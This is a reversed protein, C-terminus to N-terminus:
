NKSFVISASFDTNNNLVSSYVCPPIRRTNSLTHTFDPPGCIEHRFDYAGTNQSRTFNRFELINSSWARAHFSRRSRYLLSDLFISKCVSSQFFISHPHGNCCRHLLKLFLQVTGPTHHPCHPPLDTPLFLM